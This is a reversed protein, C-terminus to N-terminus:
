GNTSVEQNKKQTGTLPKCKLHDRSEEIIKWYGSDIIKRKTQSRPQHGDDIVLVGEAKTIRNLEALFATPDNIGFFLDIACVVDAVADPLGSDYGKALVPTITKLGQKEIKEKVAEIALEHIDVAFVKGKEGVLNAFITSYRGPGCGYDVVTMGPQIGFEQIRKDIHPCIFDVFKFILEMGRFSFDSM